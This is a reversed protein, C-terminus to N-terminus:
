SQFKGAFERDYKDVKEHINFLDSPSQQVLGSTWKRVFNLYAWDMDSLNLKLGNIRCTWVPSRSRVDFSGKALAIIQLCDWIVGDKGSRFYDYVSDDPDQRAPVLETYQFTMSFPTKYSEVASFIKEMEKLSKSIPKECLIPKGLPILKKLYAFHNETPTCLIIKEAAFCKESIYHESHNIDVGSFPIELHKLIAQYRKGMSGESGVIVVLKKNDAM